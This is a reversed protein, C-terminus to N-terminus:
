WGQEMKSSWTYTHTGAMTPVYCFITVRRNLANWKSGPQQDQSMQTPSKYLRFWGNHRASSRERMKQPRPVGVEREAQLFSQVCSGPWGDGQRMFWPSLRPGFFLFPLCRLKNERGSGSFAGNLSGRCSSYNRTLRNATSMRSVTGGEEVQFGPKDDEYGHEILERFADIGCQGGNSRRATRFV